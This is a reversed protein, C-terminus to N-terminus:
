DDVIIQRVVLYFSVDRVNQYIDKNIGLIWLQNPIKDHKTFIPHANWGDKLVQLAKNIRPLYVFQLAWIHTPNNVDLVLKEELYHFLDYYMSTCVYYVDKWHREIWQNHVRQGGIYSRRGPGRQLHIIMYRSFLLFWKLSYSIRHILDVASRTRIDRYQAVM